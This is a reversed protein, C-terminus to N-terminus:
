RKENVHGKSWEERTVPPKTYTIMRGRTQFEENSVDMRDWPYDIKRADPRWQPDFQIIIEQLSAKRTLAVQALRRV